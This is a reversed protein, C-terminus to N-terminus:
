NFFSKENLVRFQRLINKLLKQYRRLRDRKWDSILRQHDSVIPASVTLRPVRLGNGTIFNARCEGKKLSVRGKKTKPKIVLDTLLKLKDAEIPKREFHMTTIFKELSVRGRRDLLRGAWGLRDRLESLKTVGAKSMGTQIKEVGSKVNTERKVKSKNNLTKNPEIEM